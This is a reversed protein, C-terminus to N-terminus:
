IRIHEESDDKFVNLDKVWIKGRQTEIAGLDRLIKVARITSETTTGTVEALEANTFFLPSGFKVSLTRLVRMIRREVKKEMLDFVRSLASDIAPAIWSIVHPTIDPHSELFKLYCPGSIQLCKSDRAAEAELFRPRDIFPSVINFPEGKKVLLFTIRKGSESCASVRLLGCSVIFIESNFEGNRLIIAGKPYRVERTISALDSLTSLTVGKLFASNQFLEIKGEQSLEIM